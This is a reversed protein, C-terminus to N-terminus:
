EVNFTIGEALAKPDTLEHTSIYALLVVRSPGHLQPVLVMTQDDLTHISCLRFSGSETSVIIARIFDLHAAQEIDLQFEFQDCQKFFSSGEIEHSEILLRHQIRFRSDRLIDVDVPDLAVHFAPLTEGLGYKEVSKVKLVDVTPSYNRLLSISAPNFVLLCLAFLLTLWSQWSRFSLLKPKSATGASLSEVISDHDMALCGSAPIWSEHDNAYPIGNEAISVSEDFTAVGEFQECAALYGSWILCCIELNSFADLDTRLRRTAQSIAVWKNNAVNDSSSEVQLRAYRCSTKKESLLRDFVNTGVRKMLIDTSRSARPLLFRFKQDTEWDFRREADSLLMETKATSLARYAEVGLNDFVGGDSIMQTRDLVSSPLNLKKPNLQYPPFLPPFASSAAVCDALHLSNVNLFVGTTSTDEPVSALVGKGSFCALAGTTMNTGLLYISVDSTSIDALSQKGFLLRYHTRLLSVTSLRGDALKFALMGLLSLAVFCAVFSYVSFSLFIWTATAFGISISALCTWFLLRSRVISERVGRQAFAVLESAARKFHKDDDSNYDHWNKVLHAALISGGSVSFVEKVLPLRGSQRLYFVVGLHFLTARFGGGSFLVTLGNDKKSNM